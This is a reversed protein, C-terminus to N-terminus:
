GKIDVDDERRGHAYFDHRAALDTVGMDTALGLLTALPHEPEGGTRLSEQLEKLNEKAERHDPDIELVKKMESIAEEVRNQEYYLVGLDFLPYTHNPDLEIAKKFSAEAEHLLAADGEGGEQVERGKRFLEMCAVGYSTYADALFLYADNHKEGRRNIYAEVGRVDTEIIRRLVLRAEEFCGVQIYITGLSALTVLDEAENEVAKEYAELADDSNGLDEHRMAMLNYADSNKPDVKVLKEYTAIAHKYYYDREAQNLDGLEVYLDALKMYAASLRDDFEIAKLYHEEAAQWNKLGTYIIGLYLHGAAVHIGAQIAKKVPAIAKRLKSADGSTLFPTIYVTGLHFQATANNPDLKAAKELAQAARGMDDLEWYCLGLRTYAESSSPTLKVIRRLVNLAKEPTQQELYLSYEGILEELGAIGATSSDTERIGKQDQFIFTKDKARPVVDTIDSALLVSEITPSATFRTYKLQRSM